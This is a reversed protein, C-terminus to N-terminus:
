RLHSLARRLLRRQDAHDLLGLAKEPRFWGSDLANEGPDPHLEAEWPAEFLFWDVRKSYRTRNREFEHQTRGLSGKLELGTLGVEEGLERRAAQEPVEGPEIGGKPFVWTGYRSRMVAVWVAEGRRRLVVGGASRVPIPEGASHDGARGRERM